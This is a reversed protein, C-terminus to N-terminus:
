NNSENGRRQRRRAEHQAKLQVATLEKDRQDGGGTGLVRIGGRFVRRGKVYADFQTQDLFTGQLKSAEPPPVVQRLEAAGAAGPSHQSLSLSLTHTTSLYVENILVYKM